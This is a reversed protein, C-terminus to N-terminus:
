IKSAVDIASSFDLRNLSQILLSIAVVSPPVDASRLKRLISEINDDAMYPLVRQSITDVNPVVQVAAMQRLADLVGKEGGM